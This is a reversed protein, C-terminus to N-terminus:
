ERILDMLGIGNVINTAAIIFRYGKIKGLLRLAAIETFTVGGLFYVLVVRVPDGVAATAGAASRGPVHSIFRVALSELILVVGPFPCKWFNQHTCEQKSAWAPCQPCDTQSQM